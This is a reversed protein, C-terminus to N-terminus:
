LLLAVQLHQLPASVLSCSPTLQWWPSIGTRQIQKSECALILPWPGRGQEPDVYGLLQLPPEGDKKGLEVIHLLHLLVKTYYYPMYFELEQM